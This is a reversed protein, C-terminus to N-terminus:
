FNPKQKHTQKNAYSLLAFIIMEFFIMEAKLVQLSGFALFTPCWFIIKDKNNNNWVYLRKLEQVIEKWTINPFWFEHIM